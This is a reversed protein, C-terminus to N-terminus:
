RLIQFADKSTACHRTQKNNHQQMFWLRTFQKQENTQWLKVDKTYDFSITFIKESLNTRARARAHTHTKSM